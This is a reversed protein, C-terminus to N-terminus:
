RRYPFFKPPESLHGTKYVAWSFVYRISRGIYILPLGVFLMLPWIVSLILAATVDEQDISGPIEFNMYWLNFIFALIFGVVYALLWLM